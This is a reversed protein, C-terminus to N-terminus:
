SAEKRGLARSAEILKRAYKDVRVKRLERDRVKEM